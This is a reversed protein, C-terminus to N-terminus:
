ILGKWDGRCKWDLWESCGGLMTVREGMRDSDRWRDRVEGCIGCKRLGIKM